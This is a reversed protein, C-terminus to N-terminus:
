KSSCMKEMPRCMSGALGCVACETPKLRSAASAIVYSLLLFLLLLGPPQQATKRVLIPSLFVLCATLAVGWVCWVLILDWKLPQLPKILGLLACAKVLVVTLVCQFCLLANPARFGFGDLAHKNLLTLCGSSAAYCLGSLLVATSPCTHIYTHRHTHSDQNSARRLLTSSAAYCLGSLLM